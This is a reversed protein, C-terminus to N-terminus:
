HIVIRTERTRGFDLTYCNPNQGRRMLRVLIIVARRQCYKMFKILWSRTNGTMSSFIISYNENHM